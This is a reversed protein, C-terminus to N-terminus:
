SDNELYQNMKVTLHILLYSTIYRLLCKPQLDVDSAKNLTM